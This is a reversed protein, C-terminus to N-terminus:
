IGLLDRCTEINSAAQPLGTQASSTDSSDNCYDQLAHCISHSDLDDDLAARIRELLRASNEVTPAEFCRLLEALFAASEDLIDPQWEGGERYGYHMLALRIAAPPYLQLLDDAFVMNGLSKSMKEGLYIIPSVHMWHNALPTGRLAKTQTIECEHHPFILDTGGGHLDFPVDLLTSSMVSCEIHWGPRGHGLATDWAAPDSEDTIGKWLLFDLPSRKGPREPDGGRKRLLKLALGDPLSSFSGFDPDKAVDFYVDNELKYAAGQELMQSVAESMQQIYESAKPQAYLPRFNMADMVKEFRAQEQLALDRYDIGLEAAKAYIPEDVDTINRVMRVEHGMDELRRQLLDYTLFTFIHGLHAADYPTIGCVYIGVTKGPKFPAHRKTATDYLQM